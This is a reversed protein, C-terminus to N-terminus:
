RRAASCPCPLLTATLGTALAGATVVDANSRARRRGHVRAPAVLGGDCVFGMDTDHQGSAQGAPLGTFYSESPAAPKQLQEPTM